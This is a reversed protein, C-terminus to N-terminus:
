EEMFDNIICVTYYIINEGSDKNPRIKKKDKENKNESFINKTYNRLSIKKNELLSAIYKNRYARYQFYFCYVVGYIFIEIDNSSEDKFVIFLELIEKHNNFEEYYYIKLLDIVFEVLYLIQYISIIIKYFYHMKKPLVIQMIFIFVLVCHLINIIPVSVLYMVVLILKDINIFFYKAILDKFRFNFEDINEENENDNHIEAKEKDNNENDSDSNKDLNTNNNKEEDVDEYLLDTVTDSKPISYGIDLTKSSGQVPLIADTNVEKKENDIQSNEKSEDKKQSLITNKNKLVEKVKPFYYLSNILFM